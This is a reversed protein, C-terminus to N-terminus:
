SPSAGLAEVIKEAVLQGEVEDEEEELITKTGFSLVGLV